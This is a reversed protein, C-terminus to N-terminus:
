WNLDTLNARKKILEKFIINELRLEILNLIKARLDGFFILPDSSDKWRIIAWEEIEPFIIDSFFSTIIM